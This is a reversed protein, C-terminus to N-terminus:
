CEYASCGFHGGSELHRGWPSVSDPTEVGSMFVVEFGQKTYRSRNPHIVEFSNAKLHKTAGICSQNLRSGQVAVHAVSVSRRIDSLSRAHYVLVATTTSRRLRRGDTRNQIKNEYKSDLSGEVGTFTVSNLLKRNTRVKTTTTRTPQRQVLEM